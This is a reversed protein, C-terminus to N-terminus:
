QKTNELESIRKQLEEIQQQQEKLAQTLVPILGIYNVAKYEVSEDQQYGKVQKQENVLEPLIAEVDQAIFGYQLGESLNLFSAEGDQKYFYTKPELRKVIGLAGSFDNIDYKLKADSPGSLTGTYTVDGVFYGAYNTSASDGVAFIGYNTNSNAANCVAYVGLNNSSRGKVSTYYGVSQTSAGPSVQSFTGINYSGNGSVDSMTGIAEGGSTNIDGGVVNLGGINSLGRDGIVVNRSAVYRAGTGSGGNFYKDALIYFGNSSTTITDRVSLRSTPNDHNIGVSGDNYYITGGSQTWISGGTGGSMTGFSWEAGDYQLVQDKTPTGTKVDIGNLKNANWQPKNMDAKISDNSILIGAGAHYQKSDDKAPVWASGNWKLIDGTSPNSASVSKGDITQDSGVEDKGPVWASGNWKLIEDTSPSSADVDKGDITNDTGKDDTAPVWASGNWKLIDGTNAGSSNVDSLDGSSISLNSVSEATKSHLAYPVSQLQVTGMVAYGSGQDLEVKLHHSTSSWDISSFNDSTSGKGVVISFQGYQNTTVTHTEEYVKNTAGPGTLIVTKVTISKNKILEGADDRAIAQYNFGEPSQAMSILSVSLFLLFSITHLISKKM